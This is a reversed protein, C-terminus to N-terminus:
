KGDKSIDNPKLSESYKFMFASLKPWWYFFIATWILILMGGIIMIPINDTNRQIYPIHDATYNISYFTMYFIDLSILPGFFFGSVITILTMIRSIKYSGKLEMELM